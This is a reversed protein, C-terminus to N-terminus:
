LLQKRREDKHELCEKILTSCDVFCDVLDPDFQTGRGDAIIQMSKEHSFPKKYPRESTLADYVDVISMIRAELPIEEGKLGSPYGTGDWREHHYLAMHEAIKLFENEPFIKRIKHFTQGGLEAHTQMYKMENSELSSQKRLVVDDIGIKGIDHLPASRVALTIFDETIYERYAPIFKLYNVFSEFYILTNKVHGGTVGDRSEVLEAFGASLLYQLKDNEEIKKEVMDMLSKEYSMLELQTKVRRKMVTNVFPKIIFDVAGLDFGRVESEPDTEATLFIVPIKRFRRSAKLKQIMEYGDMEPMVIDLLILDPIKRELIEFAEKASLAEFLVYDDKLVDRATVINFKNDDVILISKKSEEREMYWTRMDAERKYFYGLLQKDDM